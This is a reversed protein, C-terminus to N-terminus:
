EEEQQQPPEQRPQLPEQQPLPQPPEEQPPQPQPPLQEQGVAPSRGWSRFAGGIGCSATSGGGGAASTFAGGAVAGWGLPPMVEGHQPWTGQEGPYFPVGNEWPFSPLLTPALFSADDPWWGPTTAPLMTPPPTALGAAAVGGVVAGVPARWGAHQVEHQFGLGAPGHTTTGDAAHALPAAGLPWIGNVGNPFFPSRDEPSGRGGNEGLVLQLSTTSPEWWRQGGGFSPDDLGWGPARSPLTM